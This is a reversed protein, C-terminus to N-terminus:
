GKRGMAEYLAESTPAPPVPPLPAGPTAFGRLFHGVLRKWGEPAADGTAAVVAANAILVLILDESAFDERLHGTARSRDIITM